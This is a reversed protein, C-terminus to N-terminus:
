LLISIIMGLKSRQYFMLVCTTPQSFLQSHHQEGDQVASDLYLFSLIEEVPLVIVESGKKEAVTRTCAV